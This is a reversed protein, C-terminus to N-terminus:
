KRLTRVAADYELPDGNPYQQVIEMLREREPDVPLGVAVPAPQEAYTLARVEYAPDEVAWGPKYTFLGPKVGGGTVEWAVPEGQPQRKLTEIQEDRQNLLLQLADREATVRDLDAQPPMPAASLMAAWCLKARFAAQQCGSMEQYQEWVEEDSFCEDPVSEFGNIVMTETPEVPVLKWQSSM